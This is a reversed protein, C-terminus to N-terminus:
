DRLEGGKELKEELASPLSGFLPRALRPKVICVDFSPGRSTNSVSAPVLKDPRWRFMVLGALLALVIIILATKMTIKMDGM